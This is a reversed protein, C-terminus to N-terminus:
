NNIAGPTPTVAIQFDNNDINTDKGNPMRAISQGKAPAPANDSLNGDDYNGYAVQDVVSGSKKLKLIDSDNNLIFSFDTGKYLVLYGSASISYTSLNKQNAPTNDEITYNTLNLVQSNPNYLEIWEIEGTDTNSYIENIKPDQEVYWTGAQFTNGSVSVSDSFYSNTALSVLFIISFLIFLSKLFAKNFM